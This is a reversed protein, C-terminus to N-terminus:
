KPMIKLYLAHNSPDQTTSVSWRYTNDSTSSLGSILEVSQAPVEVASM